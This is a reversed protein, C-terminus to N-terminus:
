TIVIELNCDEINHLEYRLATHLNSVSYDIHVFAHKQSKYRQLPHQEVMLIGWFLWWRRGKEQRDDVKMDFGDHWSLFLQKCIWCLVTSGIFCIYRPHVTEM